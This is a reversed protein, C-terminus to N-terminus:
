RNKKRLLGFGGFMSVLLLSLASPEPVASLLHSEVRPGALEDGWWEARIQLSDINALDFGSFAANSFDVSVSQVTDLMSDDIIDLAVAHGDIYLDAVGPVVGAVSGVDAVEYNFNVTMGTLDIAPDITYFFTGPTEDLFSLGKYGLGKHNTVPVLTNGGAGSLSELTWSGTTGVSTMASTTTGDFLLDINAASTPAAFMCLAALVGLAKIKKM